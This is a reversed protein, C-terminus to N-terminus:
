YTTPQARGEPTRQLSPARRVIADVQHGRELAVTKKADAEDPLRLRDRGRDDFSGREAGQGAPEDTDDPDPGDSIPNRNGDVAAVVPRDRDLGVRM